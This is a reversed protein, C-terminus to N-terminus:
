TAIFRNTKLKDDSLNINAKDSVFVKGIWIHAINESHNM